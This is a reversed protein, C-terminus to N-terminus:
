YLLASLPNQVEPIATRQQQQQQQQSMTKVELKRLEDQYNLEAFM